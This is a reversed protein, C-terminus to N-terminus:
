DIDVEIKSSGESAINGGASVNQLVVGETGLGATPSSYGPSKDFTGYHEPPVAGKRETESILTANIDDTSSTSGDAVYGRTEVGAEVDGPSPASAADNGNQDNLKDPDIVSLCCLGCGVVCVCVFLILFIPFLVLFTSFKSVELRSVLLLALLLAPLRGYFGANGAGVLEMGFQVRIMQRPDFPVTGAQIGAVDIGDLLSKGWSKLIRGFIIHVLFYLWIPLMVLGWDWNVDGDIQAALFLSFWIRLLSVVIDRRSTYQHMLAEFYKTEAQLQRNMEAEAADEEGGTMHQYADPDTSPPPVEPIALHLLDLIGLFEYAYWPIFVVFWSWTITEDLRLFVFVQILIYAATQVFMLLQMYWRKSLEDIEDKGNEEDDGSARTYVITLTVVILMVADLLWMPTWIAMWPADLRGDCKLSFLIPIIVIVSLIFGIILFIKWRDATNKQFNKLLEAPDVETPSDILKLGSAGIEDYLKKKRPDSL